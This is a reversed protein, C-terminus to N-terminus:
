GRVITGASRGLIAERVTELKSGNVYYLPIKVRKLMALGVADIVPYEGARQSFGQMMSELEEYSLQKILRADKSRKPDETYIGDVDTAVVIREAKILSAALASVAMTSQGPQMGGTIVIKGRGTLTKLEEMSTPIAQEATDGLALALLEANARTLRVALMDCRTEDAGLERAARVYRRAVHGGGVVIVWKGSGDYLERILRAYERLLGIDVDEGFLLHGGLKIVINM